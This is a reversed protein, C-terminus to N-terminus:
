LCASGPLQKRCMALFPVLMCQCSQLGMRLIVLLHMGLNAPLMVAGARESISQCPLGPGYMGKRRGGYGGGGVGGRRRRLGEGERAM